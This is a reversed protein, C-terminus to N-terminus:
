APAEGRLAALGRDLRVLAAGLAASVTIEFVADESSGSRQLAALDDDTVQYAHLAVKDVYDALPAPIGEEPGGPRTARALAARRFASPTHGPTDLVADVLRQTL